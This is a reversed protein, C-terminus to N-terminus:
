AAEDSGFTSTSIQPATDPIVVDAAEPETLEFEKLLEDATLAQIKILQTM